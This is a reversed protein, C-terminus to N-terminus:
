PLQVLADHAPCFPQVPHPLQRRQLLLLQRLQPALQRLDGLAGRELALVGLRKIRSCALQRRLQLLHVLRGLSCHVVVRHARVHCLSQRLPPRMQHALEGEQARADDFDMLPVSNCLLRHADGSESPFMCLLHHALAALRVFVRHLRVLLPPLMHQGLQLVAGGVRAAWVEVEAPAHIGLPQLKQLLLCGLLLHSSLGLEGGLRRRHLRASVIPVPLYRLPAVARRHARTGGCGDGISGGAGRGM